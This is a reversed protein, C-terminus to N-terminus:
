VVGPPNVSVCEVKVMNEFLRVEIKTDAQPMWYRQRGALPSPSPPDPAEVIRDANSIWAVGVRDLETRPLHWFCTRLSTEDGQINEGTKEISSRRAQFVTLATVNGQLQDEGRKLLTVTKLQGGYLVRHFTRTNRQNLPM